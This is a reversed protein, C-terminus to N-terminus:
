AVSKLNCSLTELYSYLEDIKLTKPVIHGPIFHIYLHGVGKDVM